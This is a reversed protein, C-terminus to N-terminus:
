QTELYQIARRLLDTNDEFAGIAKNCRHCLLGRVRKTEDHKHDVCLYKFKVEHKGCIACGGAQKALMEDYQEPTLKYFRKLYSKRGAPGNHWDKNYQRQRAKSDYGMNILQITVYIKSGVM